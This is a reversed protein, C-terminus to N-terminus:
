EGGIELNTFVKTINTKSIRGIVKYNIVGDRVIDEVVPLADIQHDIIKKAAAYVSENPHIVVINPMRTMIIGVPMNKMDADGIAAKLFDKRSVVGALYNEQLVYLSGVDELFMTVIADYVSVKEDVCIPLSKLENIKLNKIMNVVLERESKQIYRYGVKPKAELIGSM